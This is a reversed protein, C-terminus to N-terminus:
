IEKDILKLIKNKIKELPIVNNVKFSARVIDGDGFFEKSILSVDISSDSLLFCRNESLVVSVKTTPLYLGEELISKTNELIAGSLKFDDETVIFFVVKGDNFLEMKSFMIAKLRLEALTRYKQLNKNCLKYNAGLNILQSIIAFFMGDVNDDIFGNSSSLMGAYISTAIKQNIKINNDIFFDYVISVISKANTQIHNVVGYKTNKHNNDINIIDCKIEIGIKDLNSCGSVIMLDASSPFSTRVKDIWPICFLNKDMHEKLSFFSVKKHITLFYTYLASASALSDVSPNIDVAVVIHKSNEITKIINNM